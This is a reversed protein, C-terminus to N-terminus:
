SVLKRLTQDKDYVFDDIRWHGSQLVLLVKIARGANPGTLKVRVTASTGKVAVDMVRFATPYEQSDTFPDGDINPVEDPSSPKDLEKHLLSALEPSLYSEKAELSEKTFGMDHAFHAEYFKQVVEKPGVAAKSEQAWTGIFSLAAMLIFGLVIAKRM